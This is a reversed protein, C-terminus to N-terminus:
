GETPKVKPPRGRKRKPPQEEKVIEPAEDKLMPMDTRPIGDKTIWGGLVRYPVCGLREWIKSGVSGPTWAAELVQAGRQASEVAMLQVLKRAIDHNRFQTDVVLLETFSINRPSGVSRTNLSVMIFAKVKGGLVHKAGTEDERIKSGVVGCICFWNPNGIMQTALSLTFEEVTKETTQPYPIEEPGREALMQEYLRVADPIDSMQMYRFRM